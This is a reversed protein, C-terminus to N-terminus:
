CVACPASPAVADRVAHVGPKCSRTTTVSTARKSWAAGCRRSSAPWPGPRPRYCPSAAASTFPPLVHARVPNRRDRPIADALLHDRRPELHQVGQLRARGVQAELHLGEVPARLVVAAGPPHHGLVAELLQAAE